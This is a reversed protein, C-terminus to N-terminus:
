FTGAPNNMGGPQDAVPVFGGGNITEILIAADGLFKRRWPPQLRGRIPSDDLIGSLTPKPDPGPACSLVRGFVLSTSSFIGWSPGRNIHRLLLRAFVERGTQMVRRVRNVEQLREVQEWAAAMLAQQDRQVVETGLAAAVRHRP